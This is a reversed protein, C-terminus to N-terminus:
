HRGYHAMLGAMHDQHKSHDHKPMAAAAAKWDGGPNPFARVHDGFVQRQAQLAQDYHQKVWKYQDSPDTPITKLVPMIDKLGTYGEGLLTAAAQYINKKIDRKGIEPLKLIDGLLERQRDFHMMAAVTQEMTPAPPKQQGQPMGPQMGPQMQAGGQMLANQGGDPQRPNDEDQPAGTSLANSTPHSVLEAM